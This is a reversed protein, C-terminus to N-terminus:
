AVEAAFNSPLTRKKLSLESCYGCGAVLRFTRPMGARNKKLWPLNTEWCNPARGSGVM